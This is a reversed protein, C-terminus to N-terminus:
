IDKLFRNLISYEFPTLMVTDGPKCVFVKDNIDSKFQKSVTYSQRDEIKLSETIKIKKAM